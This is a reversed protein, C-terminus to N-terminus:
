FREESLDCIYIDSCIVPDHRQLLFSLINKKVKNNLIISPVNMFTAVQEETKSEAEPTKPEEHAKENAEAEARAKAVISPVNEAPIKHKRKLHQPPRDTM